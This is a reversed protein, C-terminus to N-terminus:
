IMKTKIIILWICIFVETSFINVFHQTQAHGSCQGLANPKEMTLLLDMNTNPPQGKKIRRSESKSSNPTCRLGGAVGMEEWGSCQKKTTQIQQRTTYSEGLSLTFIHQYPSQVPLCYASLSISEMGSSKRQRSVCGECRENCLQIMLWPLINTNSATQLAANRPQVCRQSEIATM